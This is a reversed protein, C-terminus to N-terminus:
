KLKKELEKLFNYAFIRGKRYNWYGYTDIFRIENYMKKAKLNEILKLYCKPQEGEDNLTWCEIRKEKILKKIEKKTDKCRREPIPKITM